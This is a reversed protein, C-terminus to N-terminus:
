LQVIHSISVEKGTVILPENASYNEMTWVVIQALDHAFMIQRLPTGTGMMILPASPNHEKQSEVKAILANVLPATSPNFDGYAGFINGPLISIFDCGHQKRYWQTLQALSRKAYAYSESTYHPPGDYILSTDIPFQANKPFMVTSLISVVKIPGNWTQFEFAAELINNNMTVNNLWFDVPKASMESIVPRNEIGNRELYQLFEFRQHAYPRHLLIGLGFWAPDVGESAKMLSMLLSFRNDRSLAEKICQLNNRRYLNFQHLKDLQVSLM